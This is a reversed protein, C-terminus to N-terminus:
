RKFVEMATVFRGLGLVLIGKGNLSVSRGDACPAPIEGAAVFESAMVAAVASASAFEGCINRYDIVPMEFGALSLFAQLQKNGDDRLAAPIGALIGGFSRKVNAPGGLRDMLSAVVGTNHEVNEFFALEIFRGPAHTNPKLCFAGGGDSLVKDSCVSRDFLRSFVDHTEDAGILFVSAASDNALLQASMLAQEFSYDGGSTTINAGTAHYRLAIQGAPANHVSGVFDTPSPFREDSEYLRTLFDHTESLAGWGTAMFVAGPPDKRGSNKYAGDALALAMRPLRKLRRIIGSPLNKSLREMAMRGKCPRGESIRSMTARTDGAGTVCATGLIQMPWVKATPRGSDFRDPTSLVVSANNGGFGFSNSLVCNVSTQLPTLLPDLGLVPDPSLCGSNAPVLNESISIASVVAEIAGAAALTHGFAGKVSSVLPMRQGRFLANVARAESLDNDPTGTGHLNIYDIDALSIGANEVASRMASLAGEGSPHPKAPHHADCSLAAGLIEAVANEPRDSGLLFMAAGEAVSMGRRDKDLPRAGQPDILQLSKFGYYTLKCLSDVGGALVRGALGTRLMEMALKVAVAGSSCATSVTLVPGVCGFRCAIDEAVSAISHCRYSEPNNHKKEFLSETTLLGGTTVGLVIADPAHECGTMAQDAAIRALQHTRPLTLTDLTQNIEGVPLARDSIVPFVTLPRLGKLGERLADKTQEVGSGLPSIIGMGSIYVRVGTM